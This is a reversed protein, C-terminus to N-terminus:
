FRIYNLLFCSLSPASLHHLRNKWIQLYLFSFVKRSKRCTWISLRLPCRKLGFESASKDSNFVNKEFIIFFIGTVARHWILTRLCFHHYTVICILGAGTTSFVLSIGQTKHNAITTLDIGMNTIARESCIQFFFVFRWKWCWIWCHYIDAIFGM